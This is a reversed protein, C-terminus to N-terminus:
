PKKFFSSYVDFRTQQLNFTVGFNTNMSNKFDDWMDRINSYGINAILYNEVMVQFYFIIYPLSKTLYKKLTVGYLFRTTGTGYYNVYERILKFMNFLSIISPSSKLLKSYSFALCGILDREIRKSNISGNVTIPNAFRYTKAQVNYTASLPPLLYKSADKNNLFMTNLVKIKVNHNSEDMKADMTRAISSVGHYIGYYFKVISWAPFKLTNNVISDYLAAEDMWASILNQKSIDLGGMQFNTNKTMRLKKLVNEVDKKRCFGTGVESDIADKVTVLLNILRIFPKFQPSGYFTYRKRYQSM